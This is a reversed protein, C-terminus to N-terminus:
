DSRALDDNRTVFKGVLMAVTDLAAAVLHVVEVAEGCAIVSPGNAEFAENM